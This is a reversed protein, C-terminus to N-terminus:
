PGHAGVSTLRWGSEEVQMPASRSFKRGLAPSEPKAFHRKRDGAIQVGLVRAAREVRSHELIRPRSALDKILEGLTVVHVGKVERPMGM